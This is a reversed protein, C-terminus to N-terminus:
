ACAGLDLARDCRLHRIVFGLDPREVKVGYAFLARFFGINGDVNCERDIINRWTFEGAWSYNASYTLKGVGTNPKPTLFKLIDKHFIVTDEYPADKYATAVEWKQGRTASSATFPYVRTYVGGAYTYRPPFQVAEFKFGRYSKNGMGPAALLVDPDAYRFDDRTNADQKKLDSFTYRGGVATYIPSGDSDRATPNMSGGNYGMAEHVEELLGWTLKSTAATAAWTAATPAGTAAIMKNGANSIYEDQYANSWVWRTNEALVRTMNNVQDAIQWQYRLDELCIDPSNIAAKKLSVSRTTIGFSDIDHGALVCANTSELNNQATADADLTAAASWFDSDTVSKTILSREYVPYTYSIGNGDVWQEKPASKIYFDTDQISKAVDNRILGAHQIFLNEVPNCAM